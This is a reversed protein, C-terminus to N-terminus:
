PVRTLRRYKLDMELKLQSPIKTPQSRLGVKKVLLGTEANNFFLKRHAFATPTVYSGCAVLYKTRQTIQSVTLNTQFFTRMM